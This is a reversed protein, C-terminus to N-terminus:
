WRLDRSKFEEVKIDENGDSLAADMNFRMANCFETLLKIGDEVAQYSNVPIYVGEPSSVSGVICVNDVHGLDITNGNEDVSAYRFGGNETSVIHSAAFNRDFDPNGTILAPIFAAPWAGAFGYPSSSIINGDKTVELGNEKIIPNMRDFGVDENDYFIKKIIPMYGNEKVIHDDEPTKIIIRTEQPTTEPLDKQQNKIRKM